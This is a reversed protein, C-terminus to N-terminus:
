DLDKFFESLTLDHKDLLNLFTTFRFNAGKEMRWYQVRPLDHDYAFSEYSSYGKKERLAKIKDAVKKVRKDPHDKKKIM